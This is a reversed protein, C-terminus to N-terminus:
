DGPSEEVVRRLPVVVLALVTRALALVARPVTLSTRGALRPRVRIPVEQVRLGNRSLLLTLEPEAYGTPHHRALLRVARPGFLWFGSTPDTVRRGTLLTLCTALVAQSARRLGGRRGTRGLFRSGTSVDARGCVVPLLLRAIDRARHQGDGDIRVVYEYGARNAYRIGARVAGGVGVRQSMTLWRVPLSRLLTETTDTSGDNVVLLDCDPAVARLESIVRPLNAAENFVPVIALLMGPHINGRAGDAPSRARLNRRMSHAPRRDLRWLRRGIWLLIAVAWVVDRVLHTVAFALAALDRTKRCAGIGAVFREGALIAIITLGAVTV